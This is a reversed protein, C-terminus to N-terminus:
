DWCSVLVTMGTAREALSEPSLPLRDQSAAPSVGADALIARLAGADAAFSVGDPLQRDGQRTPLLMGVVAGYGDVVPGGADGELASLALRKLDEEGALGRVDALEGYTLTPAGLVGGYSYGALAIESKIRPAVEAFTAVAIPAMADLPRLVAVGLRDDIAVVRADYDEDLTVRECGQVAELTTVVTGQGDVYFGSRSLKPQRIELGALLDVREETDGGAAPDLVGDIRTFSAQMEDALRTRRDEDGTPWILTFGKIQGGRLTVQTQSVIRDNRGILTFDDGNVQRPGEPPVIELTQMIDYLGVMTNRDGRQSILLVRAEPMPGSAKFHAFPPEYHDFAVVALPIKMEIGTADDRVTRLDLGDLVTNYSDLLQARQRTTLIGTPEHGNERQWAAMAARTGPGFAADVFSQYYGAWQLAEQIQAREERSLRAENQTAEFPTELPIEPDPVIQPAPDGQAQAQAPAQVVIFHLALVITFLLANAIRTM